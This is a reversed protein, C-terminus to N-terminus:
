NGNNLTKITKTINEQYEEMLHYNNSIALHVLKQKHPNSIKTLFSDINESNLIYKIVRTNFQFTADEMIEAIHDLNKVYAYNLFNEFQPAVNENLLEAFYVFGFTGNNELGNAQIQKKIVYEHSGTIKIDDLFLCLRQELFAKDVHYKDTAILAKRAEFDLNGYDISYTKYRHIKSEMAATRQHQFLFLNIEERFYDCMLSSATPISNYPSPLVVIEDHMLLLDEHKQIFSQALTQGFYAAVKADGFKFKSYDSASFPLKEIARIEHAAFRFYAM